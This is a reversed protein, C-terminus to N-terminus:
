IGIVDLIRELDTDSYFEIEIRGKKKGKVVKVKTGFKNKLAEEIPLIDPDPERKKREKAKAIRETDRVTLGKDVIRLCVELQKSKNPIMLLARAHGETIRGELLYKRIKHPLQLLRLRNTVTSRKKGVKKGIEQHSFGFEDILCKFALAEELPNLDERQLNEVLALELVESDSAERVIGPITSYGLAKVAKLRREGAILEYGSETKRVVIPQVVGKQKISNMLEELGGTDVKSRPQYPNSKVENVPLDLIGRGEPEEPILAGLGKGLAKRPM